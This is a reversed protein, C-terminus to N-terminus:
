AEQYAHDFLRHLQIFIIHLYVLYALEIPCLVHQASTFKDSISYFRPVPSIGRSKIRNVDFRVASVPPAPTRLGAILEVLVSRRGYLFEPLHGENISRSM